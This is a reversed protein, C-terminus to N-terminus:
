FYMGISLRTMYSQTFNVKPDYAARIFYKPWDYTFAAGTASISKGDIDATGSKNFLDFTTKNGTQTVYHMLIHDIQQGKIERNDRVRYAAIDNNKSFEIGAGYTLSDNPDFNINDFPKLNTRSVGLIGHVSGGIESLLALGLFDHTAAQVTTTLKLFENEDYREYGLRTQEFGSADDHYYGIWMEQNKITTRANLDQARLDKAAYDSLTIKYASKEEDKDVDEDAYAIGTNLSM